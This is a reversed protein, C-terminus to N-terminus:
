RDLRLHPWTPTARMPGVGLSGSRPSGATLYADRNFHSSEPTMLICIAEKLVLERIRSAHQLIRTDDWRIHHNETWVHEAIPSKDTFGKICTDKHEKLRTKLQHRIKGIYVKGCTCLVEDVIYKSAEGYPPPDKVKTLLSCLTPGSRFVARINFDKCVRRIWESMGAVYPLHVTPPRDEEGEGDHYGNGMFAKMLHNHPETWAARHVQRPWLSVKGYGQECTNSIILIINM